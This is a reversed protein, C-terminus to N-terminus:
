KQYEETSVNKQNRDSKQQIYGFVTRLQTATSATKYNILITCNAFWINQSINTSQGDM